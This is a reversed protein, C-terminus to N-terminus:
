WFRFRGFGQSDLISPPIYHNAKANADGRGYTLRFTLSRIRTIISSNMRHTKHTQSPLPLAVARLAPELLNTGNGIRVAEGFIREAVGREALKLKPSPFILGRADSGLQVRAPM